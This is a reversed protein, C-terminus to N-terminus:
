ALPPSGGSVEAHERHGTSNPLRIVVFGAPIGGCLAEQKSVAREAWHLLEPVTTPLCAGCTPMRHKNSLM